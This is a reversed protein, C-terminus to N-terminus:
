KKGRGNTGCMEDEEMEDSRINPSSCVDHLETNHLEEGAEYQRRETRDM